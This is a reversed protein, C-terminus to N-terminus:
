PADTRVDDFEAVTDNGTWIGVRGAEPHIADEAELLKKGSLHVELHGRRVTLAIGYWRWPVVTAPACALERREPKKMADEGIVYLCVNADRTSLRALYYGKESKHRALVGCSREDRGSLVRCRALIRADRVPFNDLLAQPYRPATRDADTQALVHTPSPARTVERVLWRAPAGKGTRRYLFGEPPEGVPYREFTETVNYSGPPPGADSAGSGAAWGADPPEQGADEPGADEPGGDTGQAEALAAALMAAALAAWVLEASTVRM